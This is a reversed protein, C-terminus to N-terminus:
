EPVWVFGEGRKEIRGIGPFPFHVAHLRQGSEASREVLAARSAAAATADGDFANPWEPRQVSVVFHHMADGVYLLSDDGSSILYGSHGPTHGEIEVAKVLGPVIDTGPAFTDIRPAMAALLAAHRPIVVSRAKEADMGSLFAWEPESLHITANPFAPAGQADTLGGVHDGHAHSVFIDTIDEPAIGATALSAPLHGADAGFSTGAGTDFLLVRGEAKVLLPQISLHLTDAPAGAAGLVEAVMEPTRGIGFVKNDNPFELAGDRLAIASLDGIAFTGIDESRPQAASQSASAPAAAETHPPTTDAVPSCASLATAAALVAFLM